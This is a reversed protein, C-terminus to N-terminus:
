TSFGSSQNHVTWVTTSLGLLHLFGGRNGPGTYSITTSGALAKGTNMTILTSSTEITIATASTNLYVEKKLGIDPTPLTVTIGSTSATSMLSIGYQSLNTGNTSVSDLIVRERYDNKFYNVMRVSATSEGYFDAVDGAATVWNKTSPLIIATADYTLVNSSAFIVRRWAGAQPPAGLSVITSGGTINVTNGSSGWINTTSDAAVDAGESHEIVYGSTNLDGTLTTLSTPASAQAFTINDTGPVNDGTSTVKYWNGAYNTGANVHTVTGRVVENAGDFDKTRGWTTAVEYIGNESADTQQWVLVRDGSSTVVGDITQASSLSTINGTSAVLVPAKVAVAAGLGTVRDTRSSTM